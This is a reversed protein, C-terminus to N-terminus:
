HLEQSFLIANFQHKVIGHFWITWLPQHYAHLRLSKLGCVRQTWLLILYSLTLSFCSLYLPCPKGSGESEQLRRRWFLLMTVKHWETWVLADPFIPLLFAAAFTKQEVCIGGDWIVILTSHTIVKHIKKELLVTVQESPLIQHYISFTTIMPAVLSIPLVAITATLLALPISSAPAMSEWHIPRSAPSTNVM